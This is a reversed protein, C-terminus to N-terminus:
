NILYLTELLIYASQIATIGNDYYPSVENLDFGRFKNPSIGQILEILDTVSIGEPTPNGVGPAQSPDLVDMDISLYVNEITSVEKNIIDAISTIKKRKIEQATVMVVGIKDAFNLEEKSFARVGIVILTFDQEELARRLHTAHSLTKDFLVDRLDLHADFVVVLEPKLARISSLTITHEGGIMVPFKYNGLLERTVGEISDLDKGLNNELDLNGLDAFALDKLDSRTRLSYTELYQSAERIADPAFRYGSRFSATSDLPAGFLVFKADDICTDTDLFPKFTSKLL